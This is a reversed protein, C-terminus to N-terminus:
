RRTQSRNYELQEETLPFGVYIKYGAGTGGSLQIIQEIDESARMRTVNGDFKVPVTFTQRALIQDAPDAVAVFYTIAAQRSRDAPGREVLLNVVAQVTVKRRRDYECTSDVREVQAAHVVDSLDRGAGPRFETVQSLDSVVIAKPCAPPTEGKGFPNWSGCGALLLAAAALAAGHRVFSIM